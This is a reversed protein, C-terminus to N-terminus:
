HNIFLRTSCISNFLKVKNKKAMKQRPAVRLLEFPGHPALSYDQGWIQLDRQVIVPGLINYDLTASEFSSM